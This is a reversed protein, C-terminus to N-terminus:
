GRSIGTWRSLRYGYSFMRWRVAGLLIDLQHAEENSPTVGRKVLLDCLKANGHRVAYSLATNGQADRYDKLEPYNDFLFEFLSLRQDTGSWGMSQPSLAGHVPLNAFYMLPNSPDAYYQHFLELCEHYRSWTWVRRSHTDTNALMWSVRAEMAKTLPTCGRTDVADVTAGNDVLLECVDPHVQYAAAHLPTKGEDDRANVDIFEMLFECVAVRGMEAAKHLLFQTECAQRFEGSRVRAYLRLGKIDNRMIMATLNLGCATNCAAELGPPSRKSECDCDQAPVLVGTATFGSVESAADPGLKEQFFKLM